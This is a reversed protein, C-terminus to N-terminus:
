VVEESYPYSELRAVFEGVTMNAIKDALRDTSIKITGDSQGAEYYVGDSCNLLECLDDVEEVTLPDVDDFHPLCEKEWDEKTEAIRQGLRLCALMHTLQGYTLAKFKTCM